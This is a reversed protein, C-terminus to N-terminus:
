SKKKSENDVCPCVSYITHGDESIGTTVAGSDNCMDCGQEVKIKLIDIKYKAYEEMADLIWKVQGSTFGDKNLTSHKYLIEKAKM